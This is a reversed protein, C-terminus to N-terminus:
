HSLYPACHLVVAVGSPLNCFEFDLSTTIWKEVDWKLDTM